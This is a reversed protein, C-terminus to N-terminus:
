LLPDVDVRGPNIKIREMLVYVGIYSGNLIVECLKTRPAWQGM